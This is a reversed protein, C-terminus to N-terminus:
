FLEIAIAYKPNIPAVPPNPPPIKPITIDPISALNDHGILMKENNSDIMSQMSNTMSICFIEMVTTLQDVISSSSSSASVNTKVETQSPTTVIDKVRMINGQRDKKVSLCIATLRLEVKMKMYEEFGQHDEESLEEHNVTIINDKDLDILSGM